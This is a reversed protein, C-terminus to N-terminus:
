QRQSNCRQHALRYNSRANPGGDRRRIIHDVTPGDPHTGPLTKDVPLGCIGCHSEEAIVQARITHHHHGLRRSATHPQCRTGHTLNPCGPELCPRLAIRPAKPM